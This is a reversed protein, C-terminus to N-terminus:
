SRAAIRGGVLGAVAALVANGAVVGARIDDDAEQLLLAVGQAIAFGVLAALAGALLPNTREPTERGALWGGAVFTAVVLAALPFVANSGEDLVLTGIIAVPVGVALVVGAGLAVARM